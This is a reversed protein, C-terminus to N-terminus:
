LAAAKLRPCTIENTAPHDSKLTRAAINYHHSKEALACAYMRTLSAFTTVIMERISLWQKLAM